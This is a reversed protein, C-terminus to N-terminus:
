STWNRDGARSARDDDAVDRWADRGEGVVRIRLRSPAGGAGLWPRAVREIQADTALRSSPGMFLEEAGILRAVRAASAFPDDAPVVLPRVPKGVREAVAVV